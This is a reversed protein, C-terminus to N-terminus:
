YEAERHIGYPKFESCAQVEQNSENAATKETGKASWTYFSSYLTFLAYLLSIRICSEHIRKNQSGSFGVLPTFTIVNLIYLNGALCPLIKDTGLSDSLAIVETRQQVM